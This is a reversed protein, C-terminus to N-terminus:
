EHRFPSTRGRRRGRTRGRVGNRTRGRGRGDDGSHHGDNFGDDFDPGDGGGSGGSGGSGGGSGAKAESLTLLAPAAYAAAFGIGLKALAQRRNINEDAVATKKETKDNMDIMVKLGTPVSPPLSYRVAGFLM